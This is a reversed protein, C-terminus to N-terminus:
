PALPIAEVKYGMESMLRPLGVTGVLHLSGVAAFVNSGSSHLADIGAAMGRNRDDLVQASVSRSTGSASDDAAKERPQIQTLDAEAWAAALRAFNAAIRGSELEDLAKELAAAAAGGTAARTARLQALQADSTELSVVRKKAGRAFDALMGDIGYSLELGGRRAALITLAMVQVDPALTELTEPRVCEFAMRRAIRNKLAPPLDLLAPAGKLGSSIEQRTKADLPDVELAVTDIERLAQLIKPGPFAWERKAMHITGYLYSSHDGKTLRWLFGRDRAQAMGEQVQQATLPAPAPPPCASGDQGLAPTVAARWVLLCVSLTHRLHKALNM